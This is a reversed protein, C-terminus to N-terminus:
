EQNKSGLKAIISKLLDQGTIINLNELNSLLETMGIMGSILSSIPMANQLLYTQTLYGLVITLEYVLLKVITRAIGSSTIPIKQARAALVGTILDLLCLLLSTIIMGKIPALVSLASVILAILWNKM